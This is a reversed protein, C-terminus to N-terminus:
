LRGADKPASVRYWWNVSFIVVLFFGLTEIIILKSCYIAHGSERQFVDSMKQRKTNKNQKREPM